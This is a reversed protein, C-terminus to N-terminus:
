KKGPIWAIWARCVKRIQIREWLLSCRPTPKVYQYRKLFNTQPYMLNPLFITSPHFNNCTTIELYQEKLIAIKGGWTNMLLSSEYLTFFSNAHCFFHTSVRQFVNWLLTSLNLLWDIRVLCITGWPPFVKGTEACQSSIKWGTMCSEVKSIM